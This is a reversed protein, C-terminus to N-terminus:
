YLKSVTMNKSLKKIVSKTLEPKEKNRLILAHFKNNEIPDSEVNAGLETCKGANIKVIAKIEKDLNTLRDFLDKNVETENRDGDRDVSVGHSDKFIASTPRGEDEKWLTPKNPIARYLEEKPDVKEPLMLYILNGQQKM